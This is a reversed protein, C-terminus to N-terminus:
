CPATINQLFELDLRLGLEHKKLSLVQQQLLQLFFLCFVVGTLGRM